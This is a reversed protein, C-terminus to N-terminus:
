SSQTSRPGSSRSADMIGSSSWFLSIFVSAVTLPVSVSHLDAPHMRLWWIFFGFPAVHALFVRPGSSRLTDLIGSSSWFLSIFVSAVTLPVSVSHLDAPHMRLWWIFFGFPTAVFAVHALFVRVVSVLHMVEDDWVYEPASPTEENQRGTRGSNKWQIKIYLHATIAILL